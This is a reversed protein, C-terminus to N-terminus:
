VAKWRERKRSCEIRSGSRRCVAIVREATGDANQEVLRATRAGSGGDKRPKVYTRLSRLSVKGRYSDVKGGYEVLFSM